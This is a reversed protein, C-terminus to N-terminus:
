WIKFVKQRKMKSGDKIGFADHFEKMNSLTGNVRWIGPSHSDTKIYTAMTEPRYLGRWVQAWSLFFRQEPTFGDILGPNNKKLAIQLAEYAVSLGGLDAINEGLTLKGNIKLTDLVTYENYQEVVMNALAAFKTSDEKSWWNKLNGDADYKAGSDDFGHSLEHGIVAGIGGYNVADDADPYFFPPQLIGAPFVIENALPSYYANVTPPSMGFRNKDRPKGYDALMKNFRFIRTNIINQYFNEPSIDVGEYTEWIEPYGIKHTIAELKILAQKKTEESMWDLRKIREAFATKVNDILEQMRAKAEPKFAREVFLKGLAEGIQRDILDATQRKREKQEKLGGIKKGSFEFQANRFAYTLFPAASEIVRYQHYAKWTELGFKKYLNELHEFYEPQGVIIKGNVNLGLTKFFYDFDATPCIKKVEALTRLNYNKEPIRLETRPRTGRAIETELELIKQANKEATEEYGALTFLKVIYALYAERVSINRPNDELYFSRDPLVGGGQSLYLANVTSNKSDPAVYMGFPISYGKRAFEAYWRTLGFWNSAKEIKILEERIPEIGANEISITDTGSLYFDRVLQWTSGKELKDKTVAENLIEQIVAKNREGLENFSGWRGETAPIQTNKLWGGNAFQYFDDEPKVSKDFNEPSIPKQAHLVFFHLALFATIFLKKM